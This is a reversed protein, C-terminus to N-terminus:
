TGGGRPPDLPGVPDRRGGGDVARRRLRAPLGDPQRLERPELDDRPVVRGAHEKYCMVDADDDCHGAGSTDPTNPLVAGMSHGQEHLLYAFPCRGHVVVICPANNVSNEVGPRTDGSGYAVGGGCGGDGWYVVNDQGTIRQGHRAVEQDIAGIDGNDHSSRM